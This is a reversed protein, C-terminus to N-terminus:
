AALKLERKKNFEKIKEIDYQHFPYKFKLLASRQLAQSFAKRFDYATKFEYAYCNKVNGTKKWSVRCYDSDTYYIVITNDGTEKRQKVTEIVNVKPRNFSREIRSAELYGLGHGMRVREGNIIAQGAKKNFAAIVSSFLAYDIVFTKVYNDVKYVTRVGKTKIRADRYTKYNPFKDLLKKVYFAFMSYGGM